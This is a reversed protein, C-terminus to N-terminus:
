CSNEEGMLFKMPILDKRVVLTSCGTGRLVDVSGMCCAKPSLTDASLSTPVLVYRVKRYSAVAAGPTSENVTM